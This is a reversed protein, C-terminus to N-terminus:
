INKQSYNNNIQNKKESKLINNNEDEDSSDSENYKNNFTEIHQSNQFDDDSSTNSHAYQNQKDEINNELVKSNTNSHVYQNQEVKKNELIKSSTTYDQNSLISTESMDDKININKINPDVDTDMIENIQKHEDEESDNVFAVDNNEQELRQDILIPKLYLGFGEKTIWLAYCELIMKLYCNKSLEELKLNKKNSTIRTGSRKNKLIKLKIIGNNFLPVEPTVSNRIISKYKINSANEFWERHNKRAENVFTMDLNRLFDVLLNVRKESNGSLPIDLEYYSDKDVLTNINKLETTQFLLRREGEIPDNYGLLISKRNDSGEIEGYIIRSMDIQSIKYPKQNKM